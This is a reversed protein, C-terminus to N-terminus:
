VVPEDQGSLLFDLVLSATWSFDATGLGEGTDPHFYEHFGAKKPMRLSTQRLKRADEEFGNRHLGHYLVWNLNMWIPGRWYKTPCFAQERRSCSPIAWGRFNESYFDLSTLHQMMHEVQENDPIQAYLPSFGSAVCVPIRQQAVLDYNQYISKEANWLKENMSRQTQDAWEEFPAPNFNLLRAIAGLDKNAQVLLSNFLVDQVLFPCDQQILAEDYQRDRGHVLLYVYRDYDHNTPRQTMNVNKTDVRQYDPVMDPTLQISHMVSDWIPSNDQGSEWPHRVYILGDNEPNRERYLYHHWAILKPFLELLFNYAAQKDQAHRYVHLAATAHIPPQIIGSTAVHEPAFPSRETQWYDPGPFYFRDGPQWNHFVIHPVLGNSWQANFLSRLEQMARGEDFHALGMAIFGSDWSWQYPYLNPAPKTSNGLWNRNLISQAQSVLQAHAPSLNLSSSTDRLADAPILFSTM